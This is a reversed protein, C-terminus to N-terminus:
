VFWSVHAPHRRYNLGPNSLAAHGMLLPSPDGTRVTFGFFSRIQSSTSFVLKGLGWRGASKGGKGSRGHRRWFNHFNDNDLAAPDGTLGRTNFDEVLLLRVTPQDLVADDM